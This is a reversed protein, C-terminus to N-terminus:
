CYNSPGVYSTLIQRTSRILPRQIERSLCALAKAYLSKDSIEANIGADLDPSMMSLNREHRPKPGRKAPRVVRGLREEIRDLYARYDDEQFFTPQRRNERQTVGSVVVRTLRAMTGSYIAVQM